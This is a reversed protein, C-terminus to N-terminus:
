PMLYVTYHSSITNSAHINYIIHKSHSQDCKRKNEDYPETGFTYWYEKKKSGFLGLNYVTTQTTMVSSTLPAQGVSLNSALAQCTEQTMM